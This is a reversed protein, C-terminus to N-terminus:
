EPHDGITVSFHTFERDIRFCITAVPVDESFLLRALALMQQEATGAPITRQPFIEADDIDCKM